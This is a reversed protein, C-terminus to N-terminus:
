YEKAFLGCVIEYYKRPGLMEELRLLRRGGDQITLGLEETNSSLASDFTNIVGTQQAELFDMAEPGQRWGSLDEALKESYFEVLWSNRNSQRPIRNWEEHLQQNGLSIKGDIPSLLCITGDDSILWCFTQGQKMPGGSKQMIIEKIRPLLKVGIDTLGLLARKPALSKVYWFQRGYYADSDFNFMGLGHWCSLPLPFSAASERPAAKLSKSASMSPSQNQVQDESTSNTGGSKMIADFPCNECELKRDCLKYDVIGAEMWICPLENEPWIHKRQQM